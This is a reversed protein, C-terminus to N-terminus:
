AAPPAIPATGDIRLRLAVALTFAAVAMPVFVLVWSIVPLDYDSYALPGVSLLHAGTFALIAVVCVLAALSPARSDHRLVLAVVLAFAAYQFPLFVWFAASLNGTIDQNAVHDVDHAVVLVLLLAFSWTLVRWLRDPHSRQDQPTM